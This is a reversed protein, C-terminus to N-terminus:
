QETIRQRKPAPSFVPNYLDAGGEAITAPFDGDRSALAGFKEIASLDGSEWSDGPGEFAIKMEPCEARCRAPNAIVFGVDHENCGPAIQSADAQGSSSMLNRYDPAHPWFRFVVEDM